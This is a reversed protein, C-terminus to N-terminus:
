LFSIEHVNPITKFGHLFNVFTNSLGKVYRTILSLFGYFMVIFRGKTVPREKTIVFDISSDDDILSFPSLKEYTLELLDCFIYWISKRSYRQEIPKRNDSSTAM